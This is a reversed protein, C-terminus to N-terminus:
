AETVKAENSREKIYNESLKLVALLIGIQVWFLTAVKSYYLGTDTLGHILFGLVGATIGISFVRLFNGAPLQIYIKYWKRLLAFLLWLFIAVGILGIEGAMHLFNNHGFYKSDGTNGYVQNVKYNLYNESFTNVGVGLFPHHKIMNLDTKYIYIRTSDLLGGWVAGPGRFWEKIGSPLLFPGAVLGIIVAVVIFILLNKDKQLISILVLAFLFGMAAGRSFTFILCFIGLIFFITFFLKQKDKLFYRELCFVIPLVLGLYLAFINTHPFTARLRPLGMMINYDQNRIFDRVFHLQFIGDLSCLLLGFGLAIAIRRAHRIDKLTENFIIFTFGYKLLKELGKISSAFDISNRMSIISILILSLFAVNIVTKQPLHDRSIVKKLFYVAIAVGILSNIIGSAIVGSFPILIVLWYLLKDCYFIIKEKNLM